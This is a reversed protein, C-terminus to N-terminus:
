DRVRAGNRNFRIVVDHRDYEFVLSRPHVHVQPAPEDPLTFHVTVPEQTVPNQVTV